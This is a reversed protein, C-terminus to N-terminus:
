LGYYTYNAGCATGFAVRIAREESICQVCAATVWYDSHMCITADSPEGDAHDAMVRGLDDATLRAPEGLLEEFRGMRTLSSDLVRHGRLPRPARPNYIGDLPVEVAVTPSCMYKNAHFLVDRGDAPRRVAVQTNSLELSAINGTADALMLLGSGWRSRASLRDIAEPVTAAEALVEGIRMSITPGARGPDLSELTQGYNYTIALGKENVGDIAGALPAATFEISRFGRAPRSERVAFFPQVAPLYDFNHAVVPRGTASAAGRIAVASCGAPPPVDVIGDVSGLMGEMAQLLWLNGVPVRAGAAIGATRQHFSPCASAVAPSSMRGEKARAMRKFWGFPLWWPRRLRFAEIDRLADYVRRIEPALAVGQVRGM